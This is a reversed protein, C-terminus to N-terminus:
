GSAKCFDELIKKLCEANHRNARILILPNDVFFQHSVAPAERCVKVGEIQGRREADLLLVSLGWAVLFFLYPNLPDGHRLGRTPEFSAIEM